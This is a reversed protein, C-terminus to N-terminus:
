VILGAKLNRTVPQKKLFVQGHISPHEFGNADMMCQPNLVHSLGRISDFM